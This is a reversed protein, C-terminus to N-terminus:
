RQAAVAVAPRNEGIIIIEGVRQAANADVALASVLIVVDPKPHGATEVGNLRRHQDFLQLDEIVLNSRAVLNGITIRASEAVVDDGGVHRASIGRNPRLVGDAQSSTESCSDRSTM